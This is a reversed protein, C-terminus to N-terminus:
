NLPSLYLHLCRTGVWMVDSPDPASKVLLKWKGEFMRVDDPASRLSQHINSATEYTTM